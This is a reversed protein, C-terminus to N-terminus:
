QSYSVPVFHNHRIRFEFSYLRANDLHFRLQIPRAQLPHCNTGSKWSVVHRISDGTKPKCDSKSFGKVVRGLADIAEVRISGSRADANLVLTDGIAILRRTTLTGDGTTEVAVFRDPRPSVAAFSSKLEGQKFADLQDREYIGPMGKVTVPPPHDPKIWRRGDSSMALHLLHRNNDADDVVYWVRFQKARADFLFAGPGRAVNTRSGTETANSIVRAEDVLVRQVGQMTEILYDDVFLQRGNLLVADGALEENLDKFLLSRKDEAAALAAAEVMFRHVPLRAVSLQDAAADVATCLSKVDPSGSKLAPKLAALSADTKETATVTERLFAATAKDANAGALESLKELDARLQKLRQVAVRHTERAYELTQPTARPTTPPDFESSHEIQDTFRVEDIHGHLFNGFGYDWIGLHLKGGDGNQLAGGDIVRIVSRGDVFVNYVSRGAGRGCDWNIELHHWKGVEIAAKRSTGRYAPTYLGLTMVSDHLYIEMASMRKNAGPQHPPRYWGFLPHYMGPKHQDIRFWLSATGREPNFNRLAEFTCNASRDTVDLARSWRSDATGALKYSDTAAAGEAQGRAFDANASRDFHAHFLVKARVPSVMVATAILGCIVPCVPRLSRSSIPKM